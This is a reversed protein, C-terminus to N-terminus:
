RPSGGARYTRAPRPKGTGGGGGGSKGTGEPPGGGSATGEGGAGGRAHGGRQMM